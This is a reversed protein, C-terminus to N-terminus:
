WWSIEDDYDKLLSYKNFGGSKLIFTLAGKSKEPNWLIDESLENLGKM